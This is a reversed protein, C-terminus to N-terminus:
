YDTAIGVDEPHDLWVRKLSFYHDGIAKGEFNRVYPQFVREYALHNLLIIPADKMILAQIDAYLNIRKEYNTEKQAQAILKDVEPNTYGILNNPSRSHFLTTIINDPDPIDAHWGYKFIPLKEQDLLTSFAPWDTLYTFTVEIGIQSLYRKIESDEILLGESKVSSWIEIPELGEGDPYGADALLEKAKEVDYPYNVNDPRYGAMGQPILGTAPILKGKGAAMSISKKDIAYNIARRVLVDDFPPIRQNFGFFRIMLAPRRIAQYKEEQFVEERLYAPIVSDELLGREFEEFMEDVSAGPFIKFVLRDLFPRGEHYTRNTELLIQEGKKWSVFQFPGTGVPHSGFDDGWKEVEERPVVGLNVMALMAILQPFPEDLIIELTYKDIARLGSVTAIRGEQYEKAGRIISLSAAVDSDTDPDLIRVFTYVFDEATVERGNHFTVGERLKFRWTMRDRSSEWSEAIAPVAMLNDTFQVLCEFIQQVVINSYIDNVKAPDLTVPENGLGRRYTGGFTPQVDPKQREGRDKLSGSSALWPTALVAAAIVLAALGRPRFKREGASACM